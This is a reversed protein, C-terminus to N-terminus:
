IFISVMMLLMLVGLTMLLFALWFNFFLELTQGFDRLKLYFMAVGALLLAELGYFFLSSFFGLKLLVGALLVVLPMLVIMIPWVEGRKQALFNRDPRQNWADLPFVLYYWITQRSTEYASMPRNYCLM